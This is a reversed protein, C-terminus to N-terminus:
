TTGGNSPTTITIRTPEEIQGLFYFWYGSRRFDKLIRKRWKRYKNFQEPRVNWCFRFLGHYFYRANEVARVSSHVVLEVPEGMGELNKMFPKVIALFDQGDGEHYIEPYTMFGFWNNHEDRVKVGIVDEM